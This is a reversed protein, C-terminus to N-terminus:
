WERARRLTEQTRRFLPVFFCYSFCHSLLLHPLPKSAIFYDAHEADGAALEFIPGAQTQNIGVGAPALAEEGEGIQDRQFSQFAHDSVSNGSAAQSAGKFRQAILEAVCGSRERAQVDAGVAFLNDDRLGPGAARRNLRERFLQQEFEISLYELM